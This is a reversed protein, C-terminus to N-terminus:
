PLLGANRLIGGFIGSFERASDGNLHGDYDVYHDVRHSYSQGYERNFNYYPVGESQLFASFYDWAEEYNEPYAAASQEPVPMSVAVFTIGKERCLGIVKKLYEMNEPAVGDASFDMRKMAPLDEPAVPFREIFGNEHYEQMETRFYAASYDGTLRRSLSDKARPLSSQLPYEYYQFFLSRFGHDRLVDRFYAAKARGFPFEHWFLLSNNGEEKQGMFYGPDVDYVLVKPDQKELALQLLWYADQPYEGGVCLNHGDYGTGALLSDPDIGMKGLSTGMVLVDCPEESVAHVDSRMFTSPYLAMDLFVLVFVLIVVAAIWKAARKSSRM